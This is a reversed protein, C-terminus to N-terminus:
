IMKWSLSEGARLPTLRNDGFQYDDPVRWTEKRLTVKESNRPLGYFDAGHFSVFAELQDLAGNLEFADAYFELGAHASYIGACGCANEKLERPHPASDTGAFFRPNGGTAAELLARRDEERKLIPLCYYHPRIGGQFIHNRNFLLHHPTITAGLNERGTQVFEVAARTTIHEFVVKLGPFDSVIKQLHRDIFASERDFVDVDPETVEAHVLLPLNHKEMAGLTPYVKNISTIGADSNTTAGAPYLKVAHVFESKAAVKVEEPSTNDTLYLTMLPEFTALREKQAEDTTNQLAIDLARRIRDLYEGAQATTTVPPKLNPM